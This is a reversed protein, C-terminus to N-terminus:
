PTPLPKTKQEIVWCTGQPKHNTKLLCQPGPPVNNHIKVVTYTTPGYMKTPSFSWLPSLGGPFNTIKSLAEVFTRRNLNKGAATAVQAFLRISTCWGQIPGQEEIYFSETGPIPKPHAKHWTTFCSRVGPDYGGMSQPRADDFGGLTETTVGQQGDLAKEYPFPILGLAVEVTSQYDSLLLQPFFQQQNEAGLYPFFANEPLLPIVSQIGAAKMREVALQADSNTSASGNLAASITFVQPTIGAQRLYGMLFYNLAAQDAAQDSVVVGVKKAGGLRGSSVGWQVLAKLVPAQDAGTWWLYPSGLQTWDSITSWASILPTHGEQTICLQNDGEWTGIGDVVAFVPPNGKTWQECLARESAASTPDFTVIMPNIKRGNIGGAANIQNVYLHISYVQENYEKDTGFGFQAGLSNVPALPFVVNITTATVGRASTSAATVPTPKFSAATRVESAGAGTPGGPTGAPALVLWAVLGVVVAVVILLTRVQMAPPRRRLRRWARSVPALPSHLHIGGSQTSM